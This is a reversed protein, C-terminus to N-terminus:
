ESTRSAPEYPIDILVQTLGGPAVGIQLMADNGYLVALRERVSAIEAGGANPAFATETVTVYLREGVVSASLALTGEGGGARLRLVQHDVLPLLTMPPLRASAADSDVDISIDLRGGLRIRAVALYARVLEAEQAVTSSTHRMHPMAARLFAILEDLMRDALAADRGYLRAVHALTNFLFTPEVRAQMAQLKSEVIERSRAIRDLEAARLRQLAIQALHREGYFVVVAGGFLLWHLAVYIPHVRALAPSSPGLYQGINDLLEPAVGVVTAWILAGSAIGTLGAIFYALRPSRTAAVRRDAITVALVLCHAMIQGSLVNSTPSAYQVVGLMVLGYSAALLAWASTRHGAHDAAVTAALAGIVLVLWAAAPISVAGQTVGLFLRDALGLAIAAALRTASVNPLVHTSAIMAYGRDVITTVASSAIM